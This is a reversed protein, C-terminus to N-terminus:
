RAPMLTQPTPAAPSNAHEHDPNSQPNEARAAFRATPFATPYHERVWDMMQERVLCQLDFAKSSDAASMLCRIEMSRDTLNTVQLGVVEGDWM